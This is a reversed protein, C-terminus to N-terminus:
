SVVVETCPAMVCSNPSTKKKSWCVKYFLIYLKSNVHIYCFPFM